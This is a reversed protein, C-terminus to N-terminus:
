KSDANKGNKLFKNQEEADKKNFDYLTKFFGMTNLIIEEVEADTLIRGYAKSFVKKFEEKINKGM